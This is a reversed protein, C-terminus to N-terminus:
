NSNLYKFSINDPGRHKLLYLHKEFFHIFDSEKPEGLYALIGSM